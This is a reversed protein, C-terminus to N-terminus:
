HSAILEDVVEHPLSFGAFKAGVMVVLRHVVNPLWVVDSFGELDGVQCM